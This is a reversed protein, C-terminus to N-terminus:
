KSSGFFYICVKRIESESAQKLMNWTLEDYFSIASEPSHFHTKLFLLYLDEESSLKVLQDNEQYCKKSKISKDFKKLDDIREDIETFNLKTKM